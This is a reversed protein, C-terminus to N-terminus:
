GRRPVEVRVTLGGGPRPEATVTGRHNLAIARVVALGLGLGGASRGGASRHEEPGRRFPEFLAPLEEPGLVPGTNTVEVFASPGATGTTVTATGGAHNHRVANAVLNLAVHRLLSPDGAVPAPGLRTTVRVEAGRAEDALDEVAAGAVEALDVPLLASPASEGRALTLLSEILRETRANADLARRLAPELEAPVRGQALPIELATRQLTLPTRLEHSAHATFHRQATFSRDLRDLMADFTDGLERVEDHPGRLDLREGLTSDASIRRAAATVQTLRHLSRRGAWWALAAALATFVVLLLVSRTLLEALVQDRFDEFAESPTTTAAPMAQGTQTGPPVPAPSQAPELPQAEPIESPDVTPVVLSRNEEILQRSSLWNLLLLGTGLVVFVSTTALTLRGRLPLRYSSRSGRPRGAGSM